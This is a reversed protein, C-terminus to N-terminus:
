MYSDRLLMALRGYRDRDIRHTESIALTTARAVHPHLPLKRDILPDLWKPATGRCSRLCGITYSMTLDFPASIESVPELVGWMTWTGLFKDDHTEIDCMDVWTGREVDITQRVNSVMASHSPLRGVSISPLHVAMKGSAETRNTQTWGLRWTGTLPHSLM